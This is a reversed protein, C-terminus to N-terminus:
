NTTGLQMWLPLCGRSWSVRLVCSGIARLGLQAAEAVTIAGDSLFVQQYVAIAEDSRFAVQYVMTAENNLFANQFVTITEYSRRHLPVLVERVFARQLIHGRSPKKAIAHTEGSRFVM